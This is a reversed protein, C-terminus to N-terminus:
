WPLLSAAQSDDSPQPAQIPDPPQPSQHREPLLAPPQNRCCISTTSRPQLRLALDPRRRERRFMLHDVSVHLRLQREPRRSGLHLREGCIALFLRERLNTFSYVACATRKSRRSETNDHKRKKENTTELSQAAALALRPPPFLMRTPAGDECPVISQATKSTKARKKPPERIALMAAIDDPNGKKCNHWHHGYEKCIPCLHKGKKRKKDSCGKYRETKPRGATAKLLPPHMFFAHDSEPWQSKDPIAPILNSYAARFGSGGLTVVEAVEESCQVVELNFERTLANLKKMIHPLILGNLKKAVKRRDNWLIVILQRAKDLFDDLNLSKHHKIWNNFCEALNNTVYDVKCITSFQSRSWLRNHWKRIYATAAPKVAEMAAWNKDFIYPNWSYAAAWLHDDFVKGTFKKKFNSVLHFMCERHEAEPFVEKVGTMVAQGADTCIALGTPSGIAQRVLQMFWIWNENTESDFVGMYVRKYHIKIKYHEKLKQRLEMAGLTADEILWDKVKECIWFKTANKVKKKRKTSFVVMNPYTSGVTMPPDQQDYETNPAHDPEHLEEEEVEPEEESEDESGDENEDESGVESEDESGDESEDEPVNTKDKEVHENEPIPNCLYSDDAEKTNNDAQVCDETIPEYAQSSDCYGILMQVVKEPDMRAGGAAGRGEGEAPAQEM